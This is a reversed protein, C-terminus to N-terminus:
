RTGFEGGHAPIGGVLDYQEPGWGVLSQTAESIQFGCSRQVAQELPEVGECCLFCRGLM